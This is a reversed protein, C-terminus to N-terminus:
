RWTPTEAVYLKENNIAREKHEADKYTLRFGWWYFIKNDQTPEESDEPKKFKMTFDKEFEIKDCEWWVSATNTESYIYKGTLTDYTIGAVDITGHKTLESKEFYQTSGNVWVGWGVRVRKGEYANRGNYVGEITDPITKRYYGVDDTNINIAFDAEIYDGWMNNSVAKWEISSEEIFGEPFSMPYMKLFPSGIYYKKGNFDEVEERYPKSTAGDFRVYWDGDFSDCFFIANKFDANTTTGDSVFVPYTSDINCFMPKLSVVEEGDMTLTLKINDFFSSDCLIRGASSNFLFFIGQNPLFSYLPNSPSENLTIMQMVGTYPHFRSIPTLTYEKTEALM